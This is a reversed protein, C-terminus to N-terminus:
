PTAYLVYVNTIVKPSSFSFTIYFHEGNIKIAVTSLLWLAVRKKPSIFVPVQSELNPSDLSNLFLIHGHNGLFVASSIGLL